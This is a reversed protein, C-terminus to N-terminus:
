LANCIILYVLATHTSSDFSSIIFQGNRFIKVRNKRGNHGYPFWAQSNILTSLRSNAHSNKKLKKGHTPRWPFSSLYVLFIEKTKGFLLCGQLQVDRSIFTQCCEKWVLLAASLKEPARLFNTEPAGKGIKGSLLTGGEVGRRCCKISFFKGSLHTKMAKTASEGVKEM